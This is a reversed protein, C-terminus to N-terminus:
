SLLEFLLINWSDYFNVQKSSYLSTSRYCLKTYYKCNYENPVNFIQKLSGDIYIEIPDTYDAGISYFHMQINLTNHANLGSISKTFSSYSEFM